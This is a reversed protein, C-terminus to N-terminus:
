AVIRVSDEEITFACFFERTVKTYRMLVISKGDENTLDCSRIHM